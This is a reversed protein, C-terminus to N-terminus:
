MHIKNLSFTLIKKKQESKLAIFYSFIIVSFISTGTVLVFRLWGYNFSCYIYVPLISSLLLIILCVAVVKIIFQKVSFEPVYYHFILLNCIYGCLLLIINLFFTIEPGFGNKLFIYSLPIILIYITSSIISWTKLKGVAYIAITFTMFMGTLLGAVLNLQCFIVAYKPVQKLWVHLLFDNEIILPLSIMLLLLFSFKSVNFILEQMKKIEGIAYYKIIQPQSATILNTSFNQIASQVQAAIGYSANIIIGFFLNLLINVGQTKTSYALTGYINWKSFNILPIIIEKDWCFQYHTESFKKTCYLKYIITIVLSVCFTLVAYLILKDFHSFVLLYVICLKLISNLIEIYAYVGMREHAIITANYPVQFITVISTLISLHFVWRASDMREPAIVLKNELWWLGVTEGLILIIIAIFLHLSLAASFTKKLRIFDQKGIEFTLFRSTAGAMSSNLFAFMAIIGGVVGYVGFDEVGLTDLVVRSTYFTIVMNFIMRFYLMMTNKVLRKNNSNGEM